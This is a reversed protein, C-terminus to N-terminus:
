PRRLLYLTGLVPQNREERLTMQQQELLLFGHAEALYAIYQPSHAFRGSTRLTFNESDATEVSFVFLGEPALVKATAAFIPALDGLYVFVDGAAVLDYPGALDPDTALLAVAEGTRLHRYIDRERAKRIMQASIDVGDMTAIRDGLAAGVLGTGCGLDLLSTPAYHALLDRIYAPTRYRLTGTLHSDFSEAYTDFLDAIYSASASPNDGSLAAVMHAAYKDYPLIALAAQFAALAEAPNGLLQHSQALGRLATADRPRQDLARRFSALATSPDGSALQAAGLETLLDAAPDPQQVALALHEVATSPDGAQMALAALLRLAGLNAPDRQAITTALARAAELQGDRRLQWADALTPLDTM